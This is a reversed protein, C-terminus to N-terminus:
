KASKASKQKAWRLRQAAAIKERAEASLPRRKKKRGPGATAKSTSGPPRGRRVGRAPGRGDTSTGTIQQLYRNATDRIQALQDAISKRQNMWGEAKAQATGLLKGLDEAFEVVASEVRTPLASGAGGRSTKKKAM